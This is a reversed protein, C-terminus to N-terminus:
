LFTHEGEIAWSQLDFHKGDAEIAWCKEGWDGLVLRTGTTEGGLPVQHIAPRHTHGHILTQVGHLQMLRVVEQPSVDMIGTAKNSNVSMSRARWDAAIKLRKKLPLHSLVWKYAPNRVKRRFRQYAQDDLCLTDGHMLLVRQGNIDAIYEDPLLTAGTERCFRRGVLFDRNGQQFYLATGRDSLRRLGSVIERSLPSPDDDGIWAEFLDGLIYLAEAGSARQQLFDQFARSVAPREPSLHLDAILLASM